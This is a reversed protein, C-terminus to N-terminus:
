WRISPNDMGYYDETCSLISPIAELSVESFKSLRKLNKNRQAETFEPNWNSM